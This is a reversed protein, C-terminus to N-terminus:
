LIKCFLMAIKKNGQGGLKPKSHTTSKMELSSGLNLMERRGNFESQSPQLM